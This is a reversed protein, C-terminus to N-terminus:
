LGGHYCDQSRAISIQQDVRRSALHFTLGPFVPLLQSWEDAHLRNPRRRRPPRQATAAVSPAAHRLFFRRTIGGIKYTANRHPDRVVGITSRSKFAVRRRM